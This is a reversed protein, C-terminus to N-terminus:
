GRRRWRALPVYRSDGSGPLSEVLVLEGSPWSVPAVPGGTPPSAAAHALTVHPRFPRSDIRFGQDSLLRRLEAQMALVAPSPDSCTAVLLRPRRWWDIRDLVVSAAPLVLREGLARLASLQSEAVSGLFELTLHLKGPPVGRGAAAVAPGFAAGVAHRTHEDPWLAFFLRRRPEQRAGIAPGAVSM